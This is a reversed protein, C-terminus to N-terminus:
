HPTTAVVPAIAADQLARDIFALSRVRDKEIERWVAAYDPRAFAFAQTPVESEIVDALGYREAFDRMRASMRAREASSRTVIKVPKRFICSFMLAHFSDSVVASAGALDALYEEPGADCRVTVNPLAFLRWRRLLDSFTRKGYLQQLSLFLVVRPRGGQRLTKLLEMCATLDGLWYCFIFPRGADPAPGLQARWENEPLLLTPDLVWQAERGTWQRVMEAGEQERVSLAHFALLADRYEALRDDPLQKFGFSAAYSVKRVTDPVAGLLFPNPRGHWQYNWVQDSGAILCAYGGLGRLEDAHRYTKASRMIRTQIFRLTRKRRRYDRLAYLPGRRFIFGLLHCARSLPSRTEDFFHGALLSNRPSLWYDIVEAPYGRDRLVKQLAFAQLVGGYNLQNLLTLIGIPKQNM